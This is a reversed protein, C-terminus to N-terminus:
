FRILTKDVILPARIMIGGMSELEKEDRYANVEVKSENKGVFVSNQSQTVALNNQSTEAQIEHTGSLGNINGRDRSGNSDGVSDKSRASHVIPRPARWSAVLPGYCPLCAAVISCHPELVLFVFQKAQLSLKMPADLVKSMVHALIVIRVIVAVCCFIGLWFIMGVFIKKQLPMQLRSIVPLPFCLVLIDLVLSSGVTIFSVVMPNLHAASKGKKIFEVPDGQLLVILFMATGWLGIFTIASWVAIHFKRTIFIRKYFLLVSIKVCTVSVSSCATAVVMCISSSIAGTMLDTHYYDVGIRQAFVFVIVSLSLSTILTAVITWDDERFEQRSIRRARYRLYVCLASVIPFVAAVIVLGKSILSPIKDGSVGSM